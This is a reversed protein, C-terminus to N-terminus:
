TGWQLPNFMMVYTLIGKLHLTYQISPIIVWRQIVAENIWFISLENRATGSVTNLELPMSIFLMCYGSNFIYKNPINNTLQDILM